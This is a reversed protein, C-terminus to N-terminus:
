TDQSSPIAALQEVLAAMGNSLVPDNLAEQLQTVLYQDNLNTAYIATLAHEDAQELLHPYEQQTHYLVARLVTDMDTERGDARLKVAKRKDTDYGAATAAQLAAQGAAASTRMWARLKPHQEPPQITEGKLTLWLAKFFARLYRM